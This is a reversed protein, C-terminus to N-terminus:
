NLSTTDRLFVNIQYILRMTPTEGFISWWCLVLSDKYKVIGDHKYDMSQSIHYFQASDSFMEYSKDENSSNLM